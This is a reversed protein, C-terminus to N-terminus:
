RIMIMLNETNNENTLFNIEWLSKLEDFSISDRIIDLPDNVYVVKTAKDYGTAVVYQAHIKNTRAIRIIVPIKQNSLTDLLNNLSCAVFSATHGNNEAEVMIDYISGKNDDIAFNASASDVARSINTDIKNDNYYAMLMGFVAPATQSNAGFYTMAYPPQDKLSDYDVYKCMAESNASAFNQDTGNPVRVDAICSQFIILLFSLTLIKFNM